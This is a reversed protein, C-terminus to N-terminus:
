STRPIYPWSMSPSTASASPRAKARTSASGRRCARPRAASRGPGRCAGSRAPAPPASGRRSPSRPRARSRRRSPRWRSARSGRRTARGRRRASTCRRACGSPRCRPWSPRARARDRERAVAADLVDAARDLLPEAVRGPPPDTPPPRCRRALELAAASRKMSGSAILGAARPRRRRCRAHGARHDPGIRSPRPRSRTAVVESPASPSKGSWSGLGRSSSFRRKMM